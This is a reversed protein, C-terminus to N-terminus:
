ELLLTEVEKELEELTEGTPLLLYSFHPNSVRRGTIRTHVRVKEANVNLLAWATEGLSGRPSHYEKGAAVVEVRGNVAEVDISATGRYGSKQSVLAVWENQEGPRLVLSGKETRHIKARIIPFSLEALVEGKETHTSSYHYSYNYTEFEEKIALFEVGCLECRLLPLPELKNKSILYLSRGINPCPKMRVLSNHVWVRTRIYNHAGSRLEFFLFGRENRQIGINHKM